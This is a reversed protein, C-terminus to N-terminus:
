SNNRPMNDGRKNRYYSNIGADTKSGFTATRTGFDSEKKVKNAPTLLQKRAKRADVGYNMGSAHDSPKSYALDGLEIRRQEKRANKTRKGKLARLEAIKEAATRVPMTRSEAKLKSAKVKNLM